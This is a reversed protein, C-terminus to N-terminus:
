HALVLEDSGRQVVDGIAHNSAIGISSERQEIPRGSEIPGGTKMKVQSESSTPKEAVAEPSTRNGGALPKGVM